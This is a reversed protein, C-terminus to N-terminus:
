RNGQRRLIVPKVLFTSVAIFGDGHTFGKSDAEHEGMYLGTSRVPRRCRLVSRQFPIVGMHARM